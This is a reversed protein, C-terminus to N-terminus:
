SEAIPRFSPFNVGFIRVFINGIGQWLGRERLPILDSVIITSVINLGGGGMGALIRGLIM